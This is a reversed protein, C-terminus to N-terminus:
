KKAETIQKLLTMAGALDRELESGPPLEREVILEERFGAALMTELLEQCRSTM